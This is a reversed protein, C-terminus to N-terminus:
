SIKNSLYKIFKILMDNQQAQRIILFYCFRWITLLFLLRRKENYNKFEKKKEM